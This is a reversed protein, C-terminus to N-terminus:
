PIKNLIEENDSENTIFYKNQFKLFVFPLCTCQKGLPNEPQTCRAPIFPFLLIIQGETNSTTSQLLRNDIDCYCTRTQYLKHEMTSKFACHAELSPLLCSCLGTFTFHQLLCCTTPQCKLHFDFIMYTLCM